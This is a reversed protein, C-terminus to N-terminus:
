VSGSRSRRLSPKATETTDSLDPMSPSKHFSTHAKKAHKSFLGMSEVMVYDDKQEQKAIYEKIRSQIKEAEEIFVKIRANDGESKSEGLAFKLSAIQKNVERLPNREESRYQTPDAKHDLLFTAQELHLHNIAYFLASSGSSSLVDLNLGPINDILWGLNSRLGFIYDYYLERTVIHIVAQGANNLTSFNFGHEKAALAYRKFVSLHTQRDRGYNAAIHVPTNGELDKKTFDIGPMEFLLNHILSSYHSGTILGIMAAHHLLTKGNEDREHIIGPNSRLAIYTEDAYRSIFEFYESKTKFEKESRTPKPLSAGLKLLKDAAEFNKIEYDLRNGEILIQILSLERSDSKSKITLNLDEPIFGKSLITKIKEIDQKKVADLWEAQDKAESVEIKKEGNNQENRQM